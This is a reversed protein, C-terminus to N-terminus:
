SRWATMTGSTWRSPSPAAPTSRGSRRRWSTPPRQTAIRWSSTRVQKPSGRRRQYEEYEVRQRSLQSRVAEALPDPPASPDLELWLPLRGARLIHEPTAMGRRVLAQLSEHALVRLMDDSDELHLIVRGVGGGTSSLMGRVVPLVVEACRRRAEPAPMPHATAAAVARGRRRTELYDAIRNVVRVLHAYCERSDGGWVTLGHHALALGSAGPPTRDVM